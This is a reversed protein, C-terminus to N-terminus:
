AVPYELPGSSPSFAARPTTPPGRGSALQLPKDPPNKKKNEVIDYALEKEIKYGVKSGPEMSISQACEKNEHNSKLCLWQVAAYLYRIFPM